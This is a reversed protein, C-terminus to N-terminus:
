ADTTHIRTNPSLDPRVATDRLIPFTRGSRARSHEAPLAARASNRTPALEQPLHPRAADLETVVKAVDRALNDHTRRSAAAASPSTACRWAGLRKMAADLDDIIRDVPQHPPETAM